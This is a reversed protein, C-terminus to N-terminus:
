KLHFHAFIKSKFFLLTPVLSYPEISLLMQQWQESGLNTKCAWEYDDRVLTGPVKKQVKHVYLMYTYPTCIPFLYPFMSM